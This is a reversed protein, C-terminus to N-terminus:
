FTNSGITKNSPLIGPIVRQISIILIASIFVAVGVLGWTKGNLWELEFYNQTFPLAIICAHLGAMSFALGIKWLRLPRSVVVLVVLGIMLLAITAASRAEALEQVGM